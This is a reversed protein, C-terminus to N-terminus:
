AVDDSGPGARKSGDRQERLLRAISAVSAVLGVFQITPGALFARFKDAFIPSREDLPVLNVSSGLVLGVPIQWILFALVHHIWNPFARPVKQLFLIGCLAGATVEIAERRLDLSIGLICKLAVSVILAGIAGAVAGAVSNIGWNRIRVAISATGFLKQYSLIRAAITIVLVFAAGSAVALAILFEYSNLHIVGLALGFICGVVWASADRSQYRTWVVASLMASMALLIWNSYRFGEIVVTEEHSVRAGL